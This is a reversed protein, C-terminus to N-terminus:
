PNPGDLDHGPLGWRLPFLVVVFGFVVAGIITKRLQQHVIFADRTGAWEAVLFPLLVVTPWRKQWRIVVYNKLSGLANQHATM